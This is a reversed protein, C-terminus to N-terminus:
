ALCSIPAPYSFVGFMYISIDGEGGLYVLLGFRMQESSADALRM